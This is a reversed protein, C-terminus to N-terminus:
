SRRQARLAETAPVDVASTAPDIVVGYDERAMEITIYEDAVDRLVAEPDRELPDGYGGGSAQEWRIMTGAPMALNTNKSYLPEEPGEPLFRTVRLPLGDHGGFVGWPAEYTGDAETTVFGDELFRNERIIAMGGRWRGPAPPEDRLEYRETGLPFLWDVEEIPTNRSNAVLVDVADLGDKGCRGGYAGENIEIHVWYEQKAEIYGAYISATLTSTGASVRDPVLGALAKMATDAMTNVPCARSLASRPFSPNFITGEPAVVAIPRFIGENQPIFEEFMAEDLFISRIVTYIGPLTSGGFPVNYGTPVNPESGTMDCVVDSGDVTVKVKVKLPKDRNRGDDDLWAEAEVTGDPVRALQARMMRECYDLFEEVATMVTERGYKELLGLLRKEGLRGAAIMAETDGVVYSPTRTNDVFFQWLQENRVGREYLKLSDYLKSEAWVDHVDIAIGPFVGGTDSLHITSASWAILEGEWFVPIAVCLDPSHSAGHYPNNHIIIDGPDVRGELRRLFGRIYAPISGIHLPTTDSECIERGDATFLGGGLDEVQQAAPSYAMRKLAHGMERGIAVFAGGIVSLTIRDLRTAESM